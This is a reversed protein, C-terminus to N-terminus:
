NLVNGLASDENRPSQNGGPLIGHRLSNLLQFVKSIPTHQINAEAVPCPLSVSTILFPLHDSQLCLILTLNLQQKVSLIM